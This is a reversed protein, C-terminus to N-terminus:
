PGFGYGEEALGRAESGPTMGDAGGVRLDSMAAGEFGSLFRFEGRCLVQGIPLGRRRQYYPHQKRPRYRFRGVSLDADQERADDGSGALLAGFWKKGQGGAEEIVEVVGARLAEVSPVHNALIGMDGSAAPINVQTVGSSSYLSQKNAKRRRCPTHHNNSISLLPRLAPEGQAIRHVRGEKVRTRRVNM